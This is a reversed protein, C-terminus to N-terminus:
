QGVEVYFEAWKTPSLGIEPYPIYAPSDIMIWYSGAEKLTIKGEFAGDKIAVDQEAISEFNGLAYGASPLMYKHIVITVKDFNRDQPSDVRGSVVIPTGAKTEVYGSTPATVTLYPEADLTLNVPVTDPDDVRRIVKLEIGSMSMPATQLLNIGPHLQVTFQIRNYLQGGIEIDKDVIRSGDSGGAWAGSGLAMMVQPAYMEKRYLMTFTTQAEHTEWSSRMVHVPKESWKLVVQGDAASASVGLWSLAKVPIYAVGGSLFPKPTTLGVLVIGEANYVRESGVRFTLDFLGPNIEANPAVHVSKAKPNWTLRSVAGSQSLTRLAVYVRGDKLIPRATQVTKGDLVAGTGNLNLKMEHRVLEFRAVDPAPEAILVPTDANAGQAAAAVAPLGASASLAAFMTLALWSRKGFISM